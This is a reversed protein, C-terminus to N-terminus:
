LRGHEDVDLHRAHVAEVQRPLHARIRARAVNRDDDDGRAGGLLVAVLRQLQPHVGEEALGVGLGLQQLLDGIEDCHLGIGGDRGLARPPPAGANSGCTCSPLYGIRRSIPRPAVLWTYRARSGNASRSTAILTNRNSWSASGCVSRRIYLDNRASAESAPLSFWGCMTSM